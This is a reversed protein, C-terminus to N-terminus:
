TDSTQIIYHDMPVFSVKKLYVCLDLLFGKTPYTNKRQMKNNGKEERLKM